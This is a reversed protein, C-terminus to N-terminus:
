WPARVPNLGFQDTSSPWYPTQSYNGSGGGIIGAGQRGFQHHIPTSRVQGVGWAYSTEYAATPPVVLATPERWRWNMYNEHWPRGLSEDQNWTNTLQAKVGTNGYTYIRAPTFPNHLAMRATQQPLLHRTYNTMTMGNADTGAYVPTPSCHRNARFRGQANAETADMVITAVMVLGITLVIKNMQIVKSKDNKYHVTGPVLRRDRIESNFYCKAEKRLRQQRL